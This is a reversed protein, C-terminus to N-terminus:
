RQGAPLASVFLGNSQRTFAFEEATAGSQKSRDPAVTDPSSPAKSPGVFLGASQWGVARGKADTMEDILLDPLLRALRSLYRRTEDSLPRHGALYEEFREPGVNYAALFGAAGFRDFLARLYAAGALINDHPDFPNNGLHYKTRLESWTEPMLQMLGMAGKPSVATANCASEIEMVAQIWTVPIAFRQSAETIYVAYRDIFSVRVTQVSAAFTEPGVATATVVVAISTLLLGAASRRPRGPRLRLLAIAPFPHSARRASRTPNGSISLSHQM